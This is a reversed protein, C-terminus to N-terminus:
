ARLARWVLQWKPRAKIPLNLAKVVQKIAAKEESMDENTPIPLAACGWPADYEDFSRGFGVSTSSSGLYFMDHVNGRAVHSGYSSGSHYEFYLCHGKGLIKDLVQNFLGDIDQIYALGAGGYTRYEADAEEKEDETMLHTDTFKVMVGKAIRASDAINDPLKCKLQNEPVKRGAATVLSGRAHFEELRKAMVAYSYEELVDIKIGYTVSVDVSSSM